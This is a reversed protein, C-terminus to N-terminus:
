IVKEASKETCLKKNKKKSDYNELYPISILNYHSGDYFLTDGVDINLISSGLESGRYSIAINKIQSGNIFNSLTSKKFFIMDLRSSIFKKFNDPLGCLIFVNNNHFILRLSNEIQRRKKRDELDFLTFFEDAFIISDRISELEEVSYIKQEGVDFKLGYSYLNFTYKDQLTKILSYVLNSKACNTDGCIGIIKPSLFINTLKDLDLRKSNLYAQYRDQSEEVDKKTIPKSEIFNCIKTMIISKNEDYTLSCDIESDFDFLDFNDKLEERCYIELKKIELNNLM